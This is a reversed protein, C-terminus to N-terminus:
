ELTTPRFHSLLILLGLLLSSTTAIRTLPSPGFLTCPRCFLLSFATLLCILDGSVCLLRRVQELTELDDLFLDQRRATLLEKLMSVVNQTKLEKLNAENTALSRMALLISKCHCIYGGATTINIKSSTALTDLAKIIRSVIAPSTPNM